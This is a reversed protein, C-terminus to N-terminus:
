PVATMGSLLLTASTRTSVQYLNIMIDYFLKNWTSRHLGLMDHLFSSRKGDFGTANAVAVYCNNMFAMAKAVLIQQEEVFLSIHPYNILNVTLQCAPVIKLKNRQM